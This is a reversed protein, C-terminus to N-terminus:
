PGSAALAARITRVASDFIEDPDQEVQGADQIVCSRNEEFADGVLRGERDYIGVKTGTTGIDIGIVHDQMPDERIKGAGAPQVSEGAARKEQSGGWTTALRRFPMDPAQPYIVIKGSVSGAISPGGAGQPLQRLGSIAESKRLLDLEGREVRALVDKMDNVSCGTSGTFRKGSVAVGALDLPVPNGYAFGAFVALSAARRWGGQPMRWPQPTPVVVM